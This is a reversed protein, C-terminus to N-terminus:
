GVSDPSALWTNCAATDNSRYGASYWAGNNHPAGHDPLRGSDPLDGRRGQDRVITEALERSISGHGAVGALFMGGFCSAGLENRRSLELGAPTELGAEYRQAWAADMVGASEQVHHGYEHVLVGLYVSLRSAPAREVEAFYRPPMYIVGECYNANDTAAKHGCPTTYPETPVSVDPSEAPLGAAALVPLWARNLCDLATRYFVLQVAPDADFQPLACETPALRAGAYIPNDALRAVKQPRPPTRGTSTASPEPTVPASASGTVPVPAPAANTRGTRAAQWVYGVLAALILVGFVLTAVSAATSGSRSAGNM